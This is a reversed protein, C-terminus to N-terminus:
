AAPKGVAKLIEKVAAEDGTAAAVALNRVFKSAKAPGAAEHIANREAETLRFAFVVLEDSGDAQRPAVKPTETKRAAKKGTPKELPIDNLPTVKVVPDEKRAKKPASKARKSKPMENEKRTHHAVMQIAARALADTSAVRVM